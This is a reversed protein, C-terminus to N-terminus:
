MVVGGGGDFVADWKNVKNYISVSRSVEGANYELMVDDLKIMASLENRHTM